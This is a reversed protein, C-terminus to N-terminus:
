DLLIAVYTIDDVMHEKSWKKVIHKMLHDCGKELRSPHLYPVLKDMVKIIV